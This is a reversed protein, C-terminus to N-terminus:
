YGGWMRDGGYPAAIEITRTAIENLDIGPTLFVGFIRISCYVGGSGSEDPHVYIPDYAILFDGEELHGAELPIGCFEQGERSWSTSRNAFYRGTSYPVETGEPFIGFQFGFRGNGAPGRGHSKGMKFLDTLNNYYTPM